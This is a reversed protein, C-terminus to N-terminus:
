EKLKAIMVLPNDTQKINKLKQLYLPLEAIKEPNNKFWKVVEYADLSAVIENNENMYHPCFQVFNDIDNNFGWYSKNKYYKDTNSSDTIFTTKKKKNYIGNRLEGKYNLTFFVFNPSEFIKEIFHFNEMEENSYFNRRDSPPTFDGSFFEYRPLIKKNEIQYLTDNFLEKFFLHKNFRYFWGEKDAGWARFLKPNKEFSDHTSLTSFNNNLRNIFILKSEEEGTFNSIYSVHISDNLWVFSTLMNTSEPNIFRRKVVGDLSYELVEGKWGGAYITKKSENYALNHKTYSFGNPDRDKHGVKRIFEGTFRDFLFQQKFAIVVVYDNDVFVRKSSSVLSDKSSLKIYEVSEAIESLNINQKNKYAAVIDIREPAGSYKAEQCGSDYFLILLLIYYFLIRLSSLKNITNKITNKMTIQSYNAGCISEM